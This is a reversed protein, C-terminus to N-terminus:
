EEEGTENLDQNEHIYSECLEILRYAPTNFVFREEEHIRDIFGLRDMMGLKREMDQWSNIGSEELIGRDNPALNDLRLLSEDFGISRFLNPRPNNEAISM